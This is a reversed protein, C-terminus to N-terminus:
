KLPLRVIPQSKGRENSHPIQKTRQAKAYLVKAQEYMNERMAAFVDNDGMADANNAIIQAQRYFEDSMQILIVNIIEDMCRGNYSGLVPKSDKLQLLLEMAEDEKRSLWLSEGLQMLNYNRANEPFDVPPFYGSMHDLNEIALNARLQAQEQDFLGATGLFGAYTLRLRVVRDDEAPTNQRNAIARVMYRTLVTLPLKSFGAINGLNNWAAGCTPVIKVADVFLLKAQELASSDGRERAQGFLARGETCLRDAQEWLEPAFKPVMLNNPNISLSEKDSDGDIRVCKWRISGNTESTVKNHIEVFSGNLEVKSLGFLQLILGHEFDNVADGGTAIM